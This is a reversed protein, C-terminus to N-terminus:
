ENGKKGGRRTYELKLRLAAGRLIEINETEATEPVKDSTEPEGERLIFHMKLPEGYPDRTEIQAHIGTGDPTPETFIRILIGHERSLGKALQTYDIM